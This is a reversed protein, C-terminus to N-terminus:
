AGRFEAWEPENAFIWRYYDIGQLHAAAEEDVVVQCRPHLQLASATVMSTIPGEVAKALIAAKSEGTVLMLCRRSDLITGVGMTIARRPVAAPDGGFMPANQELTSPTLAKERTRSRLASLPENFGIHGDSGIGLLQLGIGGAAQILSEYRRCEAGLDPAMGDPLHTRGPAVNVQAFLHEDMYRRYSCPHDAPIGIYEDLNFTSCVSFDLGEGRHLDVLCAYVREMTRGTALGLVLRPDARLEKAVIRAVLLAAKHRDPAIIVEM